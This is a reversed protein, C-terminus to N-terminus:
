SSKTWSSRSRSRGRRWSGGRVSEEFARLGPLLDDDAAAPLGMAFSPATRAGLAGSACDEPASLPRSGPDERPSRRGRSRSISRSKSSLMAAVARATFRSSSVCRPSRTGRRASRRLQTRCARAAADFRRSAASTLEAVIQSIASSPRAVAPQSAGSSKGHVGARGRCAASEREVPSCAGRRRRAAAHMVAVREIPHQDGCAITSRSVITVRSSACRPAVRHGHERGSARSEARHRGELGRAARAVQQGGLRGGPGAQLPEGRVEGGAVAVPRMSVGSNSCVATKSRPTPSTVSM